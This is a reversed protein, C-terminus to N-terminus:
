VPNAFVAVNSEYSGTTKDFTGGCTILVLRPAGDTGFIAAPLGEAKDYSRREDVRYSVTGGGAVTLQVTDGVTLDTLRYLAGVGLEASDVHGDIVTAGAASGAAVSGTWRGVDTPDTPVDLGGATIAVPRVDAHVGLTPMDLGTPIGAAPQTVSSIAGDASDPGSSGPQATEPPASGAPTESEAADVATVPTDSDAPLDTAPSIGGTVRIDMSPTAAVTGALQDAGFDATAPPLQSRIIEVATILVVGGTLCARAWRAPPTFPPSIVDGILLKGPQGPPTDLATPPRV